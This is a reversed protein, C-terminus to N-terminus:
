LCVPPSPYWWATVRGTFSCPLRSAIAAEARRDGLHDGHDHTPRLLSVFLDRQKVKPRSRIGFCHSLRAMNPSPDATRNYHCTKNV